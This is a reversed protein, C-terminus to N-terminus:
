HKRSQRLPIGSRPLDRGHDMGRTISVWCHAFVSSGETVLREADPTMTSMYFSAFRATSLLQLGESEGDFVQGVGSLITPRM